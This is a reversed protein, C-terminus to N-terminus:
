KFFIYKISYLVEKIEKRALWPHLLEHMQNTAMRTKRSMISCIYKGLEKAKNLHNNKRKNFQVCKSYFMCTLMVFCSLSFVYGVILGGKFSEHFDITKDNFPDELSNKVYKLRHMDTESSQITMLMGFCLFVAFLNDRKIQFAM